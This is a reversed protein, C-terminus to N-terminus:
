NNAIIEKHIVNSEYFSLTIVSRKVSDDIARNSIQRDVMNDKFALIDDRNDKNLRPLYRVGKKLKLQESLYGLSKDNIDMKLNDIYIGM